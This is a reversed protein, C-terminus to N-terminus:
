PTIQLCLFAWSFRSAIRRVLQVSSFRVEHAPPSPPPSPPSPLLVLEEQLKAPLPVFGLFLFFEQAETKMKAVDDSSFHLPVLIKLVVVKTEKNIRITVIKPLDGNIENKNKNEQEQEQQKEKSEPESTDRDDRKQSWMVM